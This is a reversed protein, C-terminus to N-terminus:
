TFLDTQALAGAAAENLWLSEIRPQAGDARAAKDKRVWGDLQADYLPCRYGSLVVMGSLGILTELLERHDEDTLEHRYNKRSSNRAKSRTQQVYPPDVYHLVDPRDHQRLVDIAHSNEIVVGRFREIIPQLASSYNAWDRAPTSGSKNSDPRFGTKRAGNHGDSGFGMFSRIILRRAIQIPDDTQEYALEFEERAFPTLHLLDSLQSAQAPDQLVRFLGVVEQDLDNYVESYSRRKRILVSAAGGFVETYTRHPGFHEIIWPALMWKGGHYRLVPRTSITMLAERVICIEGHDLLARM